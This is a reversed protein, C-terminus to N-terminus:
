SLGLDQVIQEVTALTAERDEADDSMALKELETVVKEM